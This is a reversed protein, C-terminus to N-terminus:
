GSKETKSKFFWVAMGAIFVIGIPDFVAHNLADIITNCILAIIQGLLSVDKWSFVEKATVFFWYGVYFCAVIAFLFLINKRRPNM